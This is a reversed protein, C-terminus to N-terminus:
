AERKPKKHRKNNGGQEEVPIMALMVLGTYRRIDEASKYTDNILMRAIIIGVALTGGLLFGLLINRTTSVPNTSALAVSMISPKDEAMIDTIYQSVIEAYENAIAAAETPSPSSITSDLRHTDAANVVSLMSPM